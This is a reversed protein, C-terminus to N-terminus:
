FSQTVLELYADKYISLEDDEDVIDFVEDPHGLVDGPIFRFKKRSIKKSRVLKLYDSILHLQGPSKRKQQSKENIKIISSCSGITNNCAWMCASWTGWWLCEFLLWRSNCRSRRAWKIPKARSLNAKQLLWWISFRFLWWLWLPVWSAYSTTYDPKYDFLHKVMCGDINRATKEMRKTYVAAQDIVSYNMQPELYKCIVLVHM